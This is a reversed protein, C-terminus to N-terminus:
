AACYSAQSLEPRSTDDPSKTRFGDLLRSGFAEGSNLLGEFRGPAYLPVTLDCENEFIAQALAHISTADMAALDPGIVVCAKAKIDTAITALSNYSSTRGIWPFLAPEAPLPYPISILQSDPAAQM